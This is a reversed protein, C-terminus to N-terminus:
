GPGRSSSVSRSSRRDYRGIGCEIGTVSHESTSRSRSGAFGALDSGLNGSSLSRTPIIVPPYSKDLDDVPMGLKTRLTRVEDKMQGYQIQVSKLTEIHDSEQSQLKAKIANIEARLVETIGPSAPFDSMSANPSHSTAHSIKRPAAGASQQMRLSELQKQLRNVIFEQEQELAVEMDIKEKQLQSLKKQLTNTIMEEEQEVKLLLEGKEKKLNNIRKMLKNAIYEEEQEASAQLEVTMQRLKQNEARLINVHGCEMELEFKLKKIIAQQAELKENLAAAFAKIKSIDNSDIVSKPASSSAISSTDSGDLGDTQVRLDNIQQQFRESRTQQDHKMAALSTELHDKELTASKLHVQLADKYTQENAEVKSLLIDKDAALTSLQAAQSRVLAKLAEPDDPLPQNDASM